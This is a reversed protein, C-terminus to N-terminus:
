QVPEPPHILSAALKCLHRARAADSESCESGRLAAPMACRRLFEGKAIFDEPRPLRGGAGNGAEGLPAQGLPAECLREFLESGVLAAIAALRGGSLEREIAGREELIAAGLGVIEQRKGDALAWDPLAAVCLFDPEMATGAQRSRFRAARGGSRHGRIVHLKERIIASRVGPVTM